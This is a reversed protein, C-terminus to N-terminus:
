AQIYADWSNEPDRYYHDDNIPIQSHGDMVYQPAPPSHIKPRDAHMACAPPPRSRVIWLGLHKPIAKIIESDEISSMIRMTGQCKPCILPDVEYIKQIL